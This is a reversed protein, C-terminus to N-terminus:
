LAPTSCPSMPGYAALTGASRQASSALWIRVAPPPRLSCQTQGASCRPTSTLQSRNTLMHPTCNTHRSCLTSDAWRHSTLYMRTGCLGVGHLKPCGQDPSTKLACAQVGHAARVIAQNSVFHTQIDSSNCQLAPVSTVRALLRPMLVSHVSLHVLASVPSQPPVSALV